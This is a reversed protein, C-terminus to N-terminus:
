VIDDGSPAERTTTSSRYQQYYSWDEEDYKGARTNNAGQLKGLRKTAFSLLLEAKARKEARLYPILAECILRINQNKATQMDYVTKTSGKKNNYERIAMSVGISEFIKHSESIITVDTNTLSICARLQPAGHNTRDQKYIAFTGEGEMIGALWALDIEKTM